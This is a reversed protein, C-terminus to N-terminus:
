MWLLVIILLIVVLAGAALLSWWVWPPPSEKAGATSPGAPLLTSGESVVSGSKLISGFLDDALPGLDLETSPATPKNSEDLPKAIRLKSSGDAPRAAKSKGSDDFQRAVPLSKVKDSSKSSPPKTGSGSRSADAGLVSSGPKAPRRPPTGTVSSGPKRATSGPLSPPKAPGGRAPGKMTIRTKDSITDDPAGPRQGPLTPMRRPPTSPSVVPTAAGSITDVKKGRATLWKGLTQAVELATQFRAAPQKAMMRMCVDVLAQPADSRDEFISSPTQTQHKLIRQALSGDRFPPHGTLLYYLTCGLSYIDARHDATHSDKAQEPALYDATGLVNEDHMRTLSTQQENIFRALGMDLIKVTGRADVLLNAPKIDRHIVKVEHAHALGEAAQRVYDAATDYDLPGDNKIITQLDRGEVYEMVLYHTNGDNDIDYARVINRHDLAAVAQAERRFRALYSSDGVRSRPLVKIAVRRQMLIHEALYVSSMGGTGLLGLLKYKGLIFGKHRGEKLRECQWPTLLGREVLTNALKGSDISSADGGASVEVSTSSVEELVSNLRDEEVLGSKRVLEVFKDVSLTAMRVVPMRRNSSTFYFHKRFSPRLQPQAVHQLERHFLLSFRAAIVGIIEDALIVGWEGVL